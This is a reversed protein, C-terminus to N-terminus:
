AELRLLIATTDDSQKYRPYKLGDPDIERELHRLESVLSKLGATAARQILTAPDYLKYLAVLDALSELHQINLATWVDIGASILEEIDQHRKPHRSDEPNSHALEDVIVFDRLTLRRLAAM